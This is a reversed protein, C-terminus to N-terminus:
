GGAWEWSLTVVVEEGGEETCGATLSVDIDEREYAAGGQLGSCGALAACSAALFTRRRVGGPRRPLLRDAPDDCRNM